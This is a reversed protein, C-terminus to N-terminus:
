CIMGHWRKGTDAAAVAAVRLAAAATDTDAIATGTAVMGAVVVVATLPIESVVLLGMVDVFVVTWEAADEVDADEDVAAIVLM